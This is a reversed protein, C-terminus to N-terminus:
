SIAAIHKVVRDTLFQMVNVYEANNFPREMLNMDSLQWGRRGDAGKFECNNRGVNYYVRKVHFTNDVPLTTVIAVSAGNGLFQTYKPLGSYDERVVPQAKVPKEAVVQNAQAPTTKADLLQELLSEMRELRDNLAANEQALANLTLRSTGNTAVAM